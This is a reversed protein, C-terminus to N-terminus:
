VRLYRRIAILSSFIGLLVGAGTQFTFIRVFNGSFYSLLNVEPLFGNLKPGLFNLVPSILLIAFISALLGHLFGEVIFPGRVFSNSAGVLKMVTIEERSSYIALRVTNFAVLFAIFAFVLSLGLGAQRSVKIIYSLRQIMAQNEGYNMKSIISKFESKGVFDAISAFDGPDKAKISLSAQLPNVGVEELSALLVEDNGHKKKFIELAEESSIYEVSAVKDLASIKDKLGTIEEQKADLSFYVSVDVKDSLTSLVSTMVMNLLLLSTWTLLTLTMILVTAASLWGNRWFNIFGNRIVRLLTTM